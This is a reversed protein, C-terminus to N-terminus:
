AAPWLGPLLARWRVARILMSFLTLAIFLLHIHWPVSLIHGPIKEPEEIWLFVLGLLAVTIVIPLIWQLLVRKM